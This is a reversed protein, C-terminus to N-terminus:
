FDNKWTLQSCNSVKDINAMIHSAAHECDDFMLYEESEFVYLNCPTFGRLLSLLSRRTEERLYKFQYHFRRECAIIRVWGSGLAADYWEHGQIGTSANLLDEASAPAILDYVEPQEQIIDLHGHKVNVDLITGDPKIWYGYAAPM